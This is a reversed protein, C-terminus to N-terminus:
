EIFTVRQALITESSFNERIRDSLQLGENKERKYNKPNKKKVSTINCNWQVINLHTKIKIKKIMSCTWDSIKIYNEAIIKVYQNELM